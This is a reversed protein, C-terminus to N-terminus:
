LKQLFIEEKTQAWRPGTTRRRGHYEFRVNGSGAVFGLFKCEVPEYLDKFKIYVPDGIRLSAVGSERAQDWHKNRRESQRQYVMSKIKNIQESAKRLDGKGIKLVDSVPVSWYGSGEDPAIVAMRTSFNMYPDLHAFLRQAKKRTKIKFDTITGTIVKGRAQFKVRDGISLETKM